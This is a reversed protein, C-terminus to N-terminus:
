PIVSKRAAIVAPKNMRTTRAASPESPETRFFPTAVTEQTLADLREQLERLTRSPLDGQAALAQRLAPLLTQIWLNAKSQGMGFAAAHFAQTPAQKVYTLIFLLRDEASPLPCNKYQSYRRGTRPKGELTWEDMHELFAAAFTPVLTEFEEVTLSTLDLIRNAKVRQEVYRLSMRNGGSEHPPLIGSIPIFELSNEIARFIDCETIYSLQDLSETKLQRADISTM